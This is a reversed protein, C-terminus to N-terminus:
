DSQYQLLVWAVYLLGLSFMIMLQLKKRLSMSLKSLERLPLAMTVIDLVMNIAASAWGQANINNCIAPHEGDWRLWAADIPHCQFVSILVFAILYAVNLGIVVYTM